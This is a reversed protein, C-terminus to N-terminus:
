GGSAPALKAACNLTSSMQFSSMLVAPPQSSRKPNPPMGVGRHSYRQSNEECHEDRSAVLPYRSRLWM